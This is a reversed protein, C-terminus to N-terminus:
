GVSFATVGNMTGVLVRGGALVPSAFHPAPGTKAQQLTRGTAPDLALLVGRENDVVWVAGGGVVPSGGRGLEVQWDQHVSGDQGVTLRALGHLCPVYVTSGDVAAGGYAPCVTAQAVQGGIGGLRQADLVYAEGRKGVALVHGGVRVPSLSGLDLDRSNDDAWSSPAFWDVRRLEPSLALVSDSGDYSGGTSEGNGVAVLLRDGDVVPGGSAWIGGERGTPVAYSLVPGAGSTAVSLVSGVYDGCDGFLGGYAIVVRGNWLALASRQQHAPRYGKPPEVARQVELAGTAANLGALVHRGGALEAVAFVRGTAPDYVPTGTIGLPDINGCPLDATRAPAGLHRSWLVAGSAADLGYVTNNETAALVRDGVVLPQGYVAGDLKATWATGLPGVPAADPATGTRLADRHYGPWDGAKLPTPSAATAVVTSPAATPSPAGGGLTCGAMLAALAAAVAPLTRRRDARLPRAM